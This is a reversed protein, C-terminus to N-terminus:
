IGHMPHSLQATWEHKVSPVVAAMAEAYAEGEILAKTAEPNAVQVDMVWDYDTQLKGVNEGITVSGVDAASELSRAAELATQKAQDDADDTWVFMASHRVQGPANLPQEDDYTWDVRATLEPQCISANYEGVEHHVDDNNYEENGAADAFDLQLAVDYNCPPGATRARWRPTRDWPKTTRLVESGGFLDTGYDIAVVSPCEYRMYALGKLMALHKEPTIEDGFLFFATHRFV